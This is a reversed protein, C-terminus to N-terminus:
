PKNHISQENRNYIYDDAMSVDTHKRPLTPISQENRNYIYDDSKSVGNHKRTLTPISQENRNYIYDDTMSVHAYKGPLTPITHENRNYIYDDTMSVDAHKRPLTPISHENRNYIYDNTMSVDTHEGPLTAISRENGNYISDDTKSVDTHKEPLTPISQKNKSYIYDNTMSVDTHKGPPSPISQENGNYIYDDITSVYNHKGHKGPLVPISQENRFFNEPDVATKVKVLRDFNKKFYKEGYVKGSNFGDGKNVGIDLDRYNLFASRPNKAVYNTMFEYMVRSQNMNNETVKADSEQWSLSYQVKFLNGARHPFPTADAPIDNMRGGYPNFVMGIKGLEGLKNFISTLAQTPIATQVYDSKRKLFKVVDTHRDILIDLKTKNYDFNSWFLTSQIWSVEFCDEKKLGLEPFSKSMLGMLRTSDGLFLAMFTAQATKKNKETTPQLLVRIFLDKDITSMVSQWKFVIDVAKEEVKKTVKFVTTVKPVPVLKVTFSLVVGFSSGGGGRIAWFLDEGMAKRDLVRGKVDVIKADIVHDVTLGYKRIMTGYGAGSIHGGIGLTPCAGAPFGHVKSKEWIRYYLEGLHAGAQVVATETGVNIDIARLNLMDIVMFQTKESSTYSVGEYDHGGSRIRIQINLKKACIVAAQVHNEKKPTIIIAPKPTSTTNYRFNKIHETLVKTYASSNAASSYVVSSFTKDPQPSSTPLCELFSKYLSNPDSPGKPLSFCPCCCIFFLLSFLIISSM